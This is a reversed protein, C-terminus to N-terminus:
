VGMDFLLIIYGEETLAIGKKKKGQKSGAGELRM